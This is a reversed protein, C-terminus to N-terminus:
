SIVSVLHSVLCRAECLDGLLEGHSSSTFLRPPENSFFEGAIRSELDYLIDSLLRITDKAPYVECLTKGNDALWSMAVRKGDCRAKSEFRRTLESVLEKRIRKQTPKKKCKIFGGMKGHYKESRWIVVWQGPWGNQPETYTNEWADISQLMIESRSM